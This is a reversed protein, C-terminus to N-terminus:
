YHERIDVMSCPYRVESYHDFAEHADDEDVYFGLSQEEGCDLVRYVEWSKTIM